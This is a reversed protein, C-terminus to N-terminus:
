NEGMVMKDGTWVKQLGLPLPVPKSTDFHEPQRAAVVEIIKQMFFAPLPIGEFRAKEVTFTVLGANTEVRYDV